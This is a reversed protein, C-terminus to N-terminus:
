TTREEPPALEVRVELGDAQPQERYRFAMVRGAAALDGEATRAAALLGPPGGVEALGVPTRLPLKAQSKARRVAAIVQRAAELPRRDAGAAAPATPPEPWQALHVSGDRWWSWVEECAYPLYPALLRLQTDLGARLAARASAGAPDGAPRYARDKVLELYDDCFAWFFREVGELAATWDAGELAATAEAVVGDLAALVALDLPDAPGGAAPGDEPLNLIFRGSNLLKIALRRGVRMQAEDVATDTGPRGGAAWYRLADAGYRDLMDTPTVVNGKSKSMKRRDPDVVWGSIAALSWPLVGHEFDSRVITYFLWTRIIEHAQPRLQMPFVRAFLNPDEEWRGAIQPTLSSTAWTDFVDPDGVFGGPRGRDAARYGDPVDTSPDVPLREAEPVIPHEHDIEGTDTLPYWLPIPVGFFRQRSVLWDSHLGTVWHEYRTRMFPPQWRLERGRELMRERHALLRVFWQRSTVIELPRDGNEYFKV